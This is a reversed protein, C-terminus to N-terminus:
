RSGAAPTTVASVKEAHNSFEREKRGERLSWLAVTRDASSSALNDRSLFLSVTTSSKKKLVLVAAVGLQIGYCQM